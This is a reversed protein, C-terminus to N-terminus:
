DSLGAGYVLAAVTTPVILVVGVAVAVIALINSVRHGGPRFGWTGFIMALAWPIGALFLAGTATMYRGRAGALLGILEALGGGILWALLAIGGMVVAIIALPSPNANVALALRAADGRRRFEIITFVVMTIVVAVLDVTLGFAYLQEVPANYPFGQGGITTLIAGALAAVGVGILLARSHWTATPPAYQVPHAPQPPGAPAAAPAPAPASTSEPSASGTYPPPTDTM